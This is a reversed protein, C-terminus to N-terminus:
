QAINGTIKFKVYMRNTLYKMAFAKYKEEANMKIFIDMEDKNIHKLDFMPADAVIRVTIGFQIQQKM